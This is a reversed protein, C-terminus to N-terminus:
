VASFKRPGEILVATKLQKVNALPLDVEVRGSILKVVQTPTDESGPSGLPLKLPRALEFRTGPALHLVAGGPLRKVTVGGAPAEAAIASSSALLAPIAAFLAFAKLSRTM